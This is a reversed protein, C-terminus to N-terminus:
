EKKKVKKINIEGFKPTVRIKLKDVKAKKREIFSRDFLFQDEIFLKHNLDSKKTQNLHNKLNEENKFLKGCVPCSLYPNILLGLPKKVIIRYRDKKPSVSLHHRCYHKVLRGYPPYEFFVKCGHACEWYLVDANCIPCKTQFSRRYCHKGHSKYFHRM